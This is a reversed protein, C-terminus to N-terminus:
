VHITVREVITPPTTDSPTEVVEVARRLLEAAAAADSDTAAHVIAFPADPGVEEGIRRVDALGVRRILRTPSAGAGAAWASWLWGSRARM